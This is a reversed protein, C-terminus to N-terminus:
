SSMRSIQGKPGCTEGTLLAFRNGSEGIAKKFTEYHQLTLPKTPALALVKGHGLLNLRSTAVLLAIITKGLGTPLVVLTNSTQAVASIKQQYERPHM